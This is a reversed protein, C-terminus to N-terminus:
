DPGQEAVAHDASSENPTASQEYHSFQNAAALLVVTLVLVALILDLVSIGRVCAGLPALRRFFSRRPVSM